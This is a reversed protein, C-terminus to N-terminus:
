GRRHKRWADAVIVRFSSLGRYRAVYLHLGRCSTTAIVRREAFYRKVTTNPITMFACHWQHHLFPRIQANHGFTMAWRRM